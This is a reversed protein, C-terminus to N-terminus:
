SGLSKLYDAGFTLIVDKANLKADATGDASTGAVRKTQRAIPLVHINNERLLEGERSHRYAVVGTSAVSTFYRGWFVPKEGLTETALDVLTKGGIQRTVLNSSDAGARGKAMEMNFHDEEM